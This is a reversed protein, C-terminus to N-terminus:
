NFKNLFITIIREIQLYSQQLARSLCKCEGKMKSYNVKNKDYAMRKENLKM